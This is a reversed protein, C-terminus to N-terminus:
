VVEELVMLMTGQWGNGTTSLREPQWLFERALVQYSQGSEQYQFVTGNQVLGVLANKDSLPNRAEVMGNIDVDDALIVPVEWRSAQGRVPFARIEWRTPIPGKENNLPCRTLVYRLNVRSFKIGALNINESRIGSGTNIRAYRGFPSNDFALDLYALGACDPVWKLQMYLASKLDEVSFSMTGQTLWGGPVKDDTSYYVGGDEIAFVTRGLWTVASMVNGAPQDWAAIDNAYAPTLNTTTFTSLDMRGLGPVPSTPFVDAQDNQTPVYGPDMSSVGYWMFRDQGEFCRVPEATPIIAGLTLDGNADPQAMRVGKDTGIFVYGLYSDIKYGIEGDPLEVAVIAPNLGTGDDKITVKHVVWKDGYGGLVYIAQPGACASEWRFLPDPSTYITTVQNGSKVWKLVNEDGALLYDKEWAIFNANTLASNYYQTASASPSDLKYIYGQNDLGMIGDGRDAIDVLPHTGLAVSATLTGFDEYWYTMFDDATVVVLYGNHLTLWTRGTTDRLQTTSPLLGFSWQDWPNIGFSDEFRSQIADDRDLNSQGGGSRWNSVQQRWVNQPLLLVDRNDTTNRQQLVDLSRQNYRNSATDIPYIRGNIAVQSGGINAVPSSGDSGGFYPEDFERTIQTSLDCV